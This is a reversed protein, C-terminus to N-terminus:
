KYLHELGLKEITPQPNALWYISGDRERDLFRRDYLDRRLTSHDKFTHWKKLVENVEMETYKKGDEFKSALYILSVKKLSKNAPYQKLKEEEDLFNKLRDKVENIDM